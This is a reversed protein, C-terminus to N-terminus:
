ELLLFDNLSELLNVPFNINTGELTIGKAFAELVQKLQKPKGTYKGHTSYIIQGSLNLIFSNFELQDQRKGRPFGSGDVQEAQELVLRKINKNPVFHMKSLILLSLMPYKQYIEEQILNSFNQLMRTQLLSLGFDKILSSIIIDSLVEEDKINNAKAIFYSLICIRIAMTDRVFLKDVLETALSVETSKRLSFCLVESKMRKMLQTFDNKRSANDIEERLLFENKSLREYKQARKEELKLMKFFFANENELEEISKGIEELFIEKDEHYVQLYARKELYSNFTDYNEQKCPSGAHLAIIRQDREKDFLFIPVSYVKDVELFSISFKYLLLM